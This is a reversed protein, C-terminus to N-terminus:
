HYQLKTQSACLLQYSVVVEQSSERNTDQHHRRENHTVKCWPPSSYDVDISSNNLTRSVSQKGHQSAWGSTAAVRGSWKMVQELVNVCLRLERQLKIPLLLEDLDSCVVDVFGCFGREGSKCNTAWGSLAQLTHKSVEAKSSGAIELILDEFKAVDAGGATVAIHDFLTLSAMHLTNDVPKNLAGVPSDAATELQVAMENPLLRSWPETCMLVALQSRTLRSRGGIGNAIESALQEATLSWGLTAGVAELLLVTDALDLVGNSTTCIYDFLNCLLECFAELSMNSCAAQSAAKCVTAMAHTLKGHMSQPVLSSCLGAALLAGFEPMTLKGNETAAFKHMSEEAMEAIHAASLQSDLERATCQLLARLGELGLYWSGDADVKLLERATSAFHHIDFPPEGADPSQMRAERCAKAVM